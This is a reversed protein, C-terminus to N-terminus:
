NRNSVPLILVQRHRISHALTRIFSGEKREMKMNQIVVFVCRELTKVEPALSPRQDESDWWCSPVEPFKVKGTM